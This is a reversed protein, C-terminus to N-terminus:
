KVIKKIILQNAPPWNLDKLENPKFWRYSSAATLAYHHTMLKAYFVNFEITDYEYTYTFPPLVLKKVKIQDDFEEHLERIVAQQPSEEIEIKGGPFEWNDGFIRNRNRKAALICGKETIVALAVRLM